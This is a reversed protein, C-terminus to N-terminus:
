QCGTFINSIFSYQHSPKIVTFIILDNTKLVKNQYFKVSLCYKFICLAIFGM